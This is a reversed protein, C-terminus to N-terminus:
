AAAERVRARLFNVAADTESRRHWVQRIEIPELALPPELVKLPMRAAFARAIRSSITAVCDTELVALPISSFHPLAVAVSRAKGHRALARDITDDIDGFLALDVHPLSAYLSLTLKSRVQPHDRRVICELPDRYVLEAELGPPMVPPIGILLDVEGRALGDGAILRDLTLLRLRTSPARKKLLRLVPQLLAIAVADSCAVTFTRTSTRPDFVPAKSVLRRAEELWARLAPLLEAGRATPTLGYSERVVLPDGFVERARKMANSVASQTVYLKVAAKTASREELVTAVVNLLNLDITALNVDSM